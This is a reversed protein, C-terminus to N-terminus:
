LKCFFMWYGDALKRVPMRYEKRHMAVLLPPSLKGEFVTLRTTTGLGGVMALM